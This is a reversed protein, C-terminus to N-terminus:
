WCFLYPSTTYQTVNPTPSIVSIQLNLNSGSVFSLNPFVPGRPTDLPQPFQSYEYYEDPAQFSIWYQNPPLPSFQTFFPTRLVTNINSINTNITTSNSVITTNM